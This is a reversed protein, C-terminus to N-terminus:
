RRESANTVKGPLIGEKNWYYKINLVERTKSAINYKNISSREGYNLNILAFPPPFHFLFVSILISSLHGFLCSPFFLLFVPSTHATTLFM